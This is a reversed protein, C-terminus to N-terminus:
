YKYGLNWQPWCLHIIIGNFFEPVLWFDSSTNTLLVSSSTLIENSQKCKRAKILSFILTALMEVSRLFALLVTWTATLACHINNQSLQGLNEQRATISFHSSLFWLVLHACFILNPIVWVLNHDLSCEGWPCIRRSGCSTEHPLFTISFLSRQLDETRGM